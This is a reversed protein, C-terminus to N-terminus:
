GGTETFDPGHPTVFPLATSLYPRLSVTTRQPMRGPFAALKLNEKATAEETPGQRSEIILGLAM